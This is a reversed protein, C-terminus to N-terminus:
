HSNLQREMEPNGVVSAVRMKAIRLLTLLIMMLLLSESENQHSFVVWQSGVQQDEGDFWQQQQKFWVSYLALRM